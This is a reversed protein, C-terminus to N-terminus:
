ILQSIGPRAVPPLPFPGLEYKSPSLSLQSGNLIWDWEVHKGTYASERGMICTLNTEAVTRGENLPKGDRISQILDAHEQVYPNCTAKSRYPKEGEIVGKDVYAVGKTGVIREGIREECATWERVMTATRVDKGYIFEVGFHDFVNGHKPTEHIQRGGSGLASVPPGGFAWNVIDLNHMVLDVICDGGLWTFYIFNRIQWEMDSWGPQRDRIWLGGRFWYCQAGVLEGIAGDHIRNIIDRYRTDHRRQTGAVIALGKKTALESSVIVSRAGVPDVAVPKEIFAHKGAEIAAKLHIPRFHAPTAMIVLDVDTALVHEYADFGVFCRDDTIRYANAPVNRKLENRSSELRDKFLDGLAVIEVGPSSEICNVVAGTGRGGCGILGIRIQDSGAAFLGSPTLCAITATAASAALVDRRTMYSCVTHRVHKNNQANANM